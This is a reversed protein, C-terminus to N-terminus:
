AHSAAVSSVPDPRLVPQRSAMRCELRGRVHCREARPGLNRGRGYLGPRGTRPISPPAASCTVRGLPVDLKIIDPRLQTILDMSASRGGAASVGLRLGLLRLPGLGVDGPLDEGGDLSGTLEIVIRDPALRSAALIQQLRVDRCTAATLNFAIFMNPPVARAASLACHLAGIELDLGLGAAAAESFWVDAGAGDQDVFRTLAEVGIVAGARLEHVPQFATLLLKHRVSVDIVPSAAPAALQTVTHKTRCLKRNLGVETTGLLLSALSLDAGSDGEFTVMLVHSQASRVGHAFRVASNAVELIEGLDSPDVVRLDYVVLLGDEYARIRIVAPIRLSDVTEKFASVYGESAAKSSLVVVLKGPSPYRFVLDATSIM